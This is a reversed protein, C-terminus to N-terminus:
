LSSAKSGFIRVVLIIIILGIFLLYVPPVAFAVPLYGIIMSLLGGLLAYPLQTNVHDIHDAGSAMSSMITTDSIPSCHDGFTAGALVSAITSLFISQQQLVSVSADAQPVFHAIPIVIPMLIAMVGWSTGTAFDILAAIIFSLLPIFYPSLFGESIRIIYDATQLDQCINGISWAMTLILAALMMAKVGGIWAAISKELTLLRQLVALGIAVISGLFAAWMLVAYSDSAGIVLSVYQVFGMSTLDTEGAELSSVGTFWLGLLTTIIM